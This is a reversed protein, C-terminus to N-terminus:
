FTVSITITQTRRRYAPFYPTLSRQRGTANTLTVGHVVTVSSTHKKMSPKPVSYLFVDSREPSFLYQM